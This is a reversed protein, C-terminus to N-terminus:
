APGELSLDVTLTTGQDPASDITLTGGLQQVREGTARLGFSDSKEARDTPDHHPNFGTGNDTVTFRLQNNTITITITATSAHAHQIVNAIAGQAIRLLATQLHMPLTVTDSDRVQVDLGETAWQTRALRRLAAGLTHDDLQPPTLERIFRRAETLNGAATERALRIHEVGPRHPGAREAAHLLMQISSLGQALADHPMQQLDTSSPIM